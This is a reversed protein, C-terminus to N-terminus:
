LTLWFHVMKNKCYNQWVLSCKLLRQCVYVKIFKLTRVSELVSNQDFGIKISQIRISETAPDFGIKITWIQVARSWVTSKLSCTVANVVPLDHVGLLSMLTPLASMDVYLQSAPKRMILAWNCQMRQLAMVRCSLVGASPPFFQHQTYHSYATLTRRSWRKIWPTFQLGTKQLIAWRKCDASCTHGTAVDFTAM